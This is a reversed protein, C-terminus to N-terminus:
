NGKKTSTEKRYIVIQGGMILAWACTGLGEDFHLRGNMEDFATKLKDFRENSQGRREKRDDNTKNFEKDVYDKLDDIRRDIDTMHREQQSDTSSISSSAWLSLNYILFCFSLVLLLRKLVPNTM